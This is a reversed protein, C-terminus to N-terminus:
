PDSARRFVVADMHLHLWWNVRDEREAEDFDENDWDDFEPHLERAKEFGEDETIM